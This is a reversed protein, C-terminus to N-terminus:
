KEAAALCQQCSYLRQYRRRAWHAYLRDAISALLPWRLPKLLWGWRTHSWAQVTADVGKIWRGDARHLHLTRLLTDPSPQGWDPLYHHIDQFALGGDALRSLHRIERSCLHCQADYYLTDRGAIPTAM